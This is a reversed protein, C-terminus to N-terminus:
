PYAEFPLLDTYNCGSAKKNSSFVSRPNPTKKIKKDQCLEADSGCYVVGDPMNRVDFALFWTGDGNPKESTMKIIGHKYFFRFQNLDIIWHHAIRGPQSPDAHAYLFYDGCGYEIIKKFETELSGNKLRYRFTFDYPYKEWFEPKRIRFALSKGNGKASELWVLDTAEKVDREFSAVAFTEKSFVYGLLAQAAPVYQDSWKRQIEYM